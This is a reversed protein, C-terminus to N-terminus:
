ARRQDYALNLGSDNSDNGGFLGSFYNKFSNKVEGETEATVGTLGGEVVVRIVQEKNDRKASEQIKEGKGETNKSSSESAFYDAFARDNINLTSVNLTDSREQVPAVSSQERISESVKDEDGAFKSYIWDGAKEGMSAGGITAAGTGLWGLGGTFLGSAIAAGGGLIGGIAGGLGKSLSRGWSHEPNAVRDVGVGIATGVIPVRTAAKGLLGAGPVKGLVNGTSQVFDDTGSLLRGGLNRAKDGLGSVAGGLRGSAGAVANRIGGSGGINGNGRRTMADYGKGILKKAGFGLGFSGALGALPLATHQAWDPLSNWASNAGTLTDELFKGHDSKINTNEAENRQWDKSETGQWQRIQDAMDTAGAKELENASAFEGNKWKDLIGADKLARFEHQSLMGQEALAMETMSGTADGFMRESNQLIRQLNEPNSIGQEKLYGLERMGELGQFEVGKGMLLDFNSDGGKIANDMNTLLASGREGRLSEVQGVQTQLGVLNGVQQGSMRDMGQGVSSALATTARIMEEERGGMSNKSVAGGILDALRQMDGEEVAGMQRLMSGTGALANPDVAYARGFGQISQTDKNLKEADTIGGKAMVSQLALTDAMSYQNAQGVLQTSDRHITDAKNYGLTGLKQTIRASSYEQDRLLDVGALSYGAYAGMSTVAGAGLMTGVAGTVNRRLQPDQQTLQNITNAHQNARETESTLDKVTERLLKLEAELTTTDKVAGKYQASNQFSKLQQEADNLKHRHFEQVSPSAVDGWKNGGEARRVAEQRRKLTDELQKHKKFESREHRQNYKEEADAMRRLSSQHTREIESMIKRYMQVQKPSLFGRQRREGQEGLDGLKNVQRSLDRLNRTAENIDAKLNIKIDQESNNNM